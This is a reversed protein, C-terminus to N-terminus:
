FSYRYGLSVFLREIKEQDNAIERSAQEAGLELEILLRRKQLSARVGVAYIWQTSEDLVFTRRDVRLQPGIRWDGWVPVRSALGASATEVPGGTQQRLAFIHIDGPRLISSALLQSSLILEAGTAPIGEVGGSPLTAGSEISQASLTWQLREGFPRSLAIGYSDLDASRDLALQRIEDSGFLGLLEDMTDVPQGILANRTTLLPSKRHELDFNLLWRAPLQWAGIAVVSNLTQFHVDYDAFGMLVRGPRFYRLEVGAAQRDVEGDYGQNIIYVGPEWADGLVGFGVSLAQFLRDTNPPRRSSEAPFGVAADVIFHPAIPYSGHAGDFLGLLGGSTRTQRGVRASWGKDRGAAEVFAASVRYQNGPGDALLDYIYGASLRAMVDVDLGRRRAIGDFDTLLANQAVFDTSSRTNDIQRISDIQNDDRRYSQSIGGLLRWGLDDAGNVNGTRAALAASRLAQLRRRVRNANPHQPFELLFAEYDAKAHALQGNRERALGLLERAEAQRSYAGRALLKTLSEIAGDYNKRRLQESAAAYLARAEDETISPAPAAKAAATRDSDDADSAADGILTEDQLALWARPHTKQAELLKREAATRTAIPGLRLRYWHVGDVDVESVYAPLGLGAGASQVVAADFPQQASDLNIAYATTLDGAPESIVVKSGASERGPRLLRIRLGRRDNTPLVAFREARYWHVVVFVDDAVLPTLEVSRVVDGDPSAPLTESRPSGGACGSEITVRIRVDEGESGPSHTVYRIACNFLVAVDIHTPTRAVDLSDMIRVAQAGAFPAALLAACLAAALRMISLAQM